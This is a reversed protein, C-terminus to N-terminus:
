RGELLDLITQAYELAKDKARSSLIKQLHPDSGVYTFRSNDTSVEGCIVSGERNMFFCIDLLALDRPALFDQLIQFAQLVTQSAQRTDIFWDALGYPMCEDELPLPNRWDFRVYPAHKGELYAGFRTPTKDIGKYIHKPSGVLAGKVVVEIPAVDHKEMIIFEGDTEITSTHIGHRQLVTCLFANLKTRIADIGPVIIPGNKQLSFLTPKLKCILRKPDASCKLIRSCGEFFLPLEDFNQTTPMM